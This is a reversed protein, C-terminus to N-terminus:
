KVGVKRKVDDVRAGIRRIAESPELQGVLGRMALGEIDNLAEVMLMTPTLEPPPKPKDREQLAERVKLDTQWDFHNNM